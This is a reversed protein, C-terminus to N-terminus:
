RGNERRDTDLSLQSMISNKVLEFFGKATVGVMQVILAKTTALLASWQRNYEKMKDKRPQPCKRLM